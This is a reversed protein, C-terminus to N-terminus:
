AKWVTFDEISSGDHFFARVRVQNEGEALRVNKWVFVTNLREDPHTGQGLSEGNLFLEVSAANAYAKVLPIVGARERFRKDALRCTKAGSWMSRYFWYADKPIRDRTCLGKDNIGVTDGEKRGASPFDFM